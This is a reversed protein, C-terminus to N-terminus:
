LGAEKHPWASLVPADWSSPGGGNIGRVTIGIRQDAVRTEVALLRQWWRVAPQRLKSIVDPNVLYAQGYFRWPSIAADEAVLIKEAELLMDM